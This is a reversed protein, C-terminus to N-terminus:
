AVASADPEAQPGDRWTLHVIDAIVEELCVKVVPSDITRLLERLTCLVHDIEDGMFGDLDDAEPLNVRQNVM